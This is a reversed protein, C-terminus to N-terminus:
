IPYDKGQYMMEDTLRNKYKWRKHTWLWNEPQKKILEELLKMYKIVLEEGEFKENEPTIESFTLQYKGRKVKIIETFCFMLNEKNPLRNYGTFVPTKQNLFNIGLQIKTKFPSQDAAFGYLSNGDSKETFFHRMVEKTELLKIGFKARSQIIKQDWFDSELKKYIGYFNEQPVNNQLAIALEWNFNHGALLIVNKKEEHAKKLVDLGKYDVLESIEKESISFIKLMEIMFDGFNRFFKKSIDNLETETKEPFSNRLNELVTKKRYGIVYYNLYFFVDSFRYLVKLPLKSFFLLIQFSIQNM